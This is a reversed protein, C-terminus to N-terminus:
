HQELCNKTSLSFNTMMIQFSESTINRRMSGACDEWATQQAMGSISNNINANHVPVSSEKPEM